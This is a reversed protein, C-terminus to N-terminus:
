APRRYSQYNREVRTISLRDIGKTQRGGNPDIYPWSTWPNVGHELLATELPKGIVGEDKGPRLDFITKAHDNRQASNFGSESRAVDDSVQLNGGHPSFM